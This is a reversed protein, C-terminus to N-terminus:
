HTLANQNEDTTLANVAGAAPLSRLLRAKVTPDDNIIAKLIKNREAMPLTDLLSQLNQGSKMADALAMTTKKSLAAEALDLSKAISSVTRNLVNPILNRLSFTDQSLIRSLETSGASASKSVRADRVLEDAAKNVVQLQQPLLKDTTSGLTADLGARKLMADEGRGLANLFPMGREGVGANDLTAALENLVKSQEIPKSLAQHEARAVKYAPAGLEIAKVLQEKASTLATKDFSKLSTFLTPNKIQDDIARKMLDLGQLTEMPDQTGPLRAKAAALAANITPLERLAELEPSVRVIPVAGGAGGLTRNFAEQQAIGQLRAADQAFAKGYNEGSIVSRIAKAVEADPAAGKISAARAAAQRNALDTYWTSDNRKALDGLAQLPPVNLGAEEIAQGATIGQPAAAIAQRVDPLKAGAADMVIKKARLKALAPGAIRDGVWGAGKALVPAAIQGAGEMTAGITVDEAARAVGQAATVPATNGLVEDALRTVGKGIGYGLGAGLVSGVPGGAAGAISGGAAALGELPTGLTERLAGLLGYTRPNDRAWQPIETGFEKQPTAKPKWTAAAFAIADQETAGEPADVPIITGDPANVNFRPM